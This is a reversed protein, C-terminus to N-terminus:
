SPDETESASSAPEDQSPMAGPQAVPNPASVPDPSLTTNPQTPSTDLEVVTVEGCACHVEIAQIVGELRVIELRTEGHVEPEDEPDDAEATIESALQPARGPHALDLLAIEHAGSAAGRKLITTSM